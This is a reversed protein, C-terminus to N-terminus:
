FFHTYAHTDTHPHAHTRVNALVRPLWCDGKATMGPQRGQKNLQLRVRKLQVPQGTLGLCEGSEM